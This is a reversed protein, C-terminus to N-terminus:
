KLTSQLHLEKRLEHIWEENFSEVLVAATGKPDAKSGIGISEWMTGSDIGGKVPLPGPKQLIVNDGFPFSDGRFAIDCIDRVREFLEPRDRLQYSLFGNKRGSWERHNQVAENLRSKAAKLKRYANVARRRPNGTLLIKGSSKSKSISTGKGNRDDWMLMYVWGGDENQKSIFVHPRPCLKRITRAMPHKRFIEGSLSSLEYDLREKDVRAQKLEAIDKQRYSDLAVHIYNETTLKQAM